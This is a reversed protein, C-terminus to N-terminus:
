EGLEQRVRDLLDREAGYKAQWTRTGLTHIGEAGQHHYHCLPIACDDGARQGMGQGDRLHHICAPSYAEHHILCVVCGIGAVRDLLKRDTKRKM